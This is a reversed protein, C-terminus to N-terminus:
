SQDPVTPRTPCLDSRLPIVKAPKRRKPRPPKQNHAAVFAAWEAWTEVTGGVRQAMRRAQVEGIWSTLVAGPSAHKMSQRVRWRLHEPPQVGLRIPRPPKAPASRPKPSLVAITLMAPGTAAHEACWDHTETRPTRSAEMAATIAEYGLVGRDVVQRATLPAPAPPSQPSACRDCMAVDCTKGNGIPFDCERTSVDGCYRCAPGLDGCLITGTTTGDDNHLIYCTV